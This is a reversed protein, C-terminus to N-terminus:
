KKAIEVRLTKGKITKTRLADLVKRGKNNLIEVTSGMDKVDIIGIDEKDIGEISMITGVIDIVRIKKKKGGNLYIKTINKTIKKTSKKIVPKSRLLSERDKINFSDEVENYNNIKFGIYEEIRDLYKNEYPTIFTISKGSTGARGTRGIRHVYAEKEVPIDINIVHTINDVDIGRAAIDTAILIRFKGEKFENMKKTRDKQLMDGHIKDVSYGKDKFYKFVAEVNDKTRCFMIATEPGEKLLIENAKNLKDKGEVKVLEHTIKDTILSQAKIKIEIPRDMHKNSLENIKEPMTASFLMTVRKRTIRRCVGEVQGIFGMNFMEDAEDIVLYNFAKGNLNGNDLHDLIRGPTGVVVHVKGKLAKEQEKFSEKGVLAIAKIRKYRGINIIDDKIQMALERTPALILAQPTNEEWDIKECLPIGFAATKGSGTQAKVILDKNLLAEKIVLDQVETPKKYGLDSLSNIIEKSLNFKDFENKM